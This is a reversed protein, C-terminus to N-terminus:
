IIPSQNQCNMKQYITINTLKVNVQEGMVEPCHNNIKNQGWKGPLPCLRSLPLVHPASLGKTARRFRGHHSACPGCHSLFGGSPHAHLRQCSPSHTDSIGPSAMLSGPHPQCLRSVGKTQFIVLSLCM